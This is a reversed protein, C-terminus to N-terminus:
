TLAAVNPLYDTDCTVSVVTREQYSANVVYEGECTIQADAVGGFCRKVADHAQEQSGQETHHATGGEDDSPGCQFQQPTSPAPGDHEADLRLDSLKIVLRDLPDPCCPEVVITSKVELLDVDQFDQIDLINQKTSNQHKSDMLWQGATSDQPSSVRPYFFGKYMTRSLISVIFVTAALLLLPMATAVVPFQDFETRVSIMHTSSNDAWLVLCYETDATLNIFTHQRQDPWLPQTQEYSDSRLTVRYGDVRVPGSRRQWAWMVTVATQNVGTVKLKTPEMLAGLRLSASVSQPPGCQQKYVPVVSILYSEMPDVDQILTSSTSSNVTSWCSSSVNTELRWWVDFHTVPQAPIEWQVWLGTGVPVSCSVWMNRVSSLPRHRRTDVSLNVSPGVGATNFAAVSVRWTGEDVTLVCIEDTVNVVSRDQLQQGMVRRYSVQYGLIHGGADHPDLAKWMIHLRGGSDTKDLRYCPQPYKSPARDLTRVSVGASWNSWIGVTRSCSVTATYFTFPQLGNISYIHKQNQPTFVFDPSQSWTESSHARYRLQCRTDGSSSWGVSVSDETSGIVTLEPAAPKVAKYVFVYHPQSWLEVSSSRVRATIMLREAPVFLAPCHKVPRFSFLNTCFSLFYGFTLNLSQTMTCSSPGTHLRQRNFILSVSAATHSFQKESWECTVSELSVKFYCSMNFNKQALPPPPQVCDGSGTVCVKDDEKCPLLDFSNVTIEYSFVCLLSTATLIIHLVDMDVPAPM